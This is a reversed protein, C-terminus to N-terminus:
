PQVEAADNVILMDLDPFWAGAFGADAAAQLTVHVVDTM